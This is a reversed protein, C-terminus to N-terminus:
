SVRWEYRPKVVLSAGVFCDREAKAILADPEMIPERARIESDGIRCFSVVPAGTRESGFSPFAQAHRQEMFAAIEECTVKILLAQDAAQGITPEDRM